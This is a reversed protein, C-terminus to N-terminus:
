RNVSQLQLTGNCSRVRALKGKAAASGQIVSVGANEIVVKSTLRDMWWRALEKPLVHWGKSIPALFELLTRYHKLLGNRVLYDPHTLACVLGRHQILWKVKQRWVCDSDEKLIVFLVHDQPLTYPIEVFKGALFPWPSRTGGPMPQFPDVDFCSADYQIDLEQLWRLNRHVAPSRFGVAGFEGLAHNIFPARKDFVRKSLYLKGDHNYGHVGVEFGRDQLERLYGRDIQYKYPVINWSSRFGYEEELRAITEIGKFGNATEVDHTLVFAWENQDPWFDIIVIEDTEGLLKAYEKLLGDDLYWTPSLDMPRTNRQLLHRLRLPIFPRVRYYMKNRWSLRPGFDKEILMDYVSGATLHSLFIPEVIPLPEGFPVNQRQTV